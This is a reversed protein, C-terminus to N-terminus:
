VHVSRYLSNVDEPCCLQDGSTMVAAAGAAVGYRFSNQMSNGRALHYVLAGVFSDGAGVVSRVKVLYTPLRLIGEANALFAGHSGMSVAIHDAMGDNVLSQAFERAGEEDLKQGKLRQLENLSPKVLFLKKGSYL